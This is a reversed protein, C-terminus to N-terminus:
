CIDATLASRSKLYINHFGNYCMFRGKSIAGHIDRVESM